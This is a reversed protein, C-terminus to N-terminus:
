RVEVLGASTWDSLHPATKQRPPLATKLNWWLYPDADGHNPLPSPPPSLHPPGKRDGEYFVKVIQCM